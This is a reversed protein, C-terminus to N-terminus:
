KFLLFLLPESVMISWWVDATWPEDIMREQTPGTHLWKQEPHFHSHKMLTPDTLCYEVFEM